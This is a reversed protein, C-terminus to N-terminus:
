CLKRWHPLVEPRVFDCNYIVMSQNGIMAASISLASNSLVLADATVMRHFALDLHTDEQLDIVIDDAVFFPMLKELEGRNADTQIRFLPPRGLTDAEKAQKRLVTLANNYYSFTDIKQGDQRRVHIVAHLGWNSTDFEELWGPDPKSTSYYSDQISPVITYWLGSKFLGFCYARDWCNDSTHVFEGRGPCPKQKKEVHRLFGHRHCGNLPPTERPVRRHVTGNFTEFHKRLNLFREMDLAVDSDGHQLEVMPIHIYQMDLAKAVLICSLKAETQHGFGDSSASSILCNAPSAPLDPFSLASETDESEFHLMPSTGHAEVKGAGVKGAEVQTQSQAPCPQQSQHLLHEDHELTQRLGTVEQQLLDNKRLLWLVVLLLALTCFSLLLVGQHGSLFGTKARPSALEPADSAEELPQLGALEDEDGSGEPESARGIVM